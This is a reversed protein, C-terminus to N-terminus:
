AEKSTHRHSDCSQNAPAPSTTRSSVRARPQEFLLQSSVLSPSEDAKQNSTVPESRDPPSSHAGQPLSSLLSHDSSPSSLPLPCLVQDQTVNTPPPDTGFMRAQEDMPSTLLAFNLKKKAATGTSMYFSAPPPGMMAKRKPIHSTKKSPSCPLSSTRFHDIKPSPISRFPDEIHSSSPGSSLITVDAPAVMPSLSRSAQIMPRPDTLRTAQDDNAPAVPVDCSPCRSTELTGQNEPLQLSTVSSPSPSRAPSVACADFQPPVLPESECHPPPSRDSPIPCCSSPSSDKGPIFSPDEDSDSSWSPSSQAYPHADDYTAPQRPTNWITADLAELSEEFTM